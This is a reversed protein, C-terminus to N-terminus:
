RQETASFILEGNRSRTRPRLPCADIGLMASLASTLITGSTSRAAANRGCGRISGSTSAKMCSSTPRSTPASSASSTARRTWGSAASSISGSSASVTEGVIMEADCFRFTTGATQSTM